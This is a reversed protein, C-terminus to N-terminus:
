PSSRPKTRLTDYLIRYLRRGQLTSAIDRMTKRLAIQKRTREGRAEPVPCFMHATGQDIQFKYWPRNGQPYDISVGDVGRDLIVRKNLARKLTTIYERLCMTIVYLPDACHDELDAPLDAPNGLKQRPSTGAPLRHRLIPRGQRLCDDVVDMMKAKAQADDASPLVAIDRYNRHIMGVTGFVWPLYKGLAEYGERFVRRAHGRLDKRLPCGPGMLSEYDPHCPGVMDLFELFGNEAEAPLAMRLPSDLWKEIPVDKKSPLLLRVLYLRLGTELFRQMADLEVFGEGDPEPVSELSRSFLAMHNLMSGVCESGFLFVHSFFVAFLESLRRSVARFKQQDQSNGSQQLAWLPDFHHGQGERLVDPAFVNRFILHGTEHLYDAHSAIHLYHPVDARFSAIQPMGIREFGLLVPTATLGSLLSVRSVVGVIGHAENADYVHGDSARLMPEVLCRRFLGLSCLMSASTALLVQNLGGRFDVAMDLPGEPTYLKAIRHRLANELAEVFEEVQHVRMRNLMRPRTEWPPKPKMEKWLVSTLIRHLAAFADYLDLVMDFRLPDSLVTFFMQYLSEITQRLKTPLGSRRMYKCLDHMSLPLGDDPTRLVSAVTSPLRPWLRARVRSLVDELVAHHELNKPTADGKLLITLPPLPVSLDTDFDIWHRGTLPSTRETSWADETLRVAWRNMEKFVTQARVYPRDSADGNILEHANVVAQKRAPDDEYDLQVTEALDVSGLPFAQWLMPAKPAGALGICSRIRSSHGPAAQWRSSLHLLGNCKTLDQGRFAPPAVLVSSSTWRFLHNGQIKRVCSPGDLDPSDLSDRVILRLCDDEEYLQRLDREEELVHWYQLQRCRAVLSAAVSINSCFALVGIEEAGRLDLLCVRLSDVDETRLMDPPPPSENHCWGRLNRVTEIISRIMVKYIAQQALLFHRVCLLGDMRYRTFVLFPTQRQVAHVRPRDDIRGTPGGPGHEPDFLEDLDWFLKPKTAKGLCAARVLDDMRPCDALWIDEIKRSIRMALHHASPDDDALVLCADDAHGIPFYSMPNYLHRKLYVPPSKDDNGKRWREYNRDIGRGYALCSRRMQQHNEMPPYDRARKCRRGWESDMKAVLLVYDHYAIDSLSKSAATRHLPTM